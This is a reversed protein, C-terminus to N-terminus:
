VRLVCNESGHENSRREQGQPDDVWNGDVVFRYEYFGSDLNIMASWVGDKSKKLPRSAPNWDNFTGAVFVANADPSHYRFTVRKKTSAAAKKAPAKVPKKPSKKAPM